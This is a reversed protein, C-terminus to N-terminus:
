LETTIRADDSTVAKADRDAMESVEENRAEKVVEGPRVVELIPCDENMHDGLRESGQNLNVEDSTMVRGDRNREKRLEKTGTDGDLLM